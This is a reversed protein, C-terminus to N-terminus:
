LKNRRAFEAILIGDADKHKDFVQSFNPFLRKGIDVSAKKLEVGKCGKPLLSKQWEKSDIFMYSISLSELVILLAELSRMASCTSFFRTPNVLPRELICRYTSYEKLINRLKIGDIRTINKKAKTYDQSKKTPTPYFHYENDNIIGITGTIGNDIGIYGM